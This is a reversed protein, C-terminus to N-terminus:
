HPPPQCFLFDRTFCPFLLIRRGRDHLLPFFTLSFKRSAIFSLFFLGFFSLAKYDFYSSAGLSCSHQSRWFSPFPAHCFTYSAILNIERRQRPPFNSDISFFSLFNKGVLSVTPPPIPFPISPAPNPLQLGFSVPVYVEVEDPLTARPLFILRVRQGVKALRRFVRGAPRGFTASLFYRIWCVPPLLPSFSIPPDRLGPGCSPLGAHLYLPTAYSSKRLPLLSFSNM